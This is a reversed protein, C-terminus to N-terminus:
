GYKDAGSDFLMTAYRNNLLFTGTVVNSDPNAGRGGIAYVRAKAEKNGTKNGTKNGLNQTRLKPCESRYHGQRGCEYCTVSMQNGVLARQATAAVAANCDRITHGVRKCNDYKVTCPGEHHMRCKNYYPLAGVYGKRGVNNGVTYARAVNQGNVNQRKFPQQQHGSNDRSNNDFRRKNEANKIAYGKLKQDMLNNAICIADQLRIPETAIVNGKVTLNWLQTEMKQIENRPCYLETMLNMLAKWTMAYAADVGVTRPPCNSIHFVMEMKKFWHTLGVVGETGKFNSLQCKVFDSVEVNDDQQENEIETETGPNKTTDYAQLAEEVRKAILENIADQTIGSHTSTPMTSMSRWLRDVRQRKVGLMGRLRMNDREVTSIRELMAVSQQSTAVIRYGQDRQVSEIVRVKHVPIEIMHDYLEQIVVDLGRQIVKLSGNASVLEILDERVPEAIDDSVVPHTVRDVGIEITGRASSKAEEELDINPETYPEYRDEFDVGLGIKRPVYPVFGEESSVEFDTMFDSDRIRKRPPLLDARIPSLAEPIPLASPVSITPSRRRKRSPGAFTATPSDCLSNSIPHDSSSHRSSSDFSTDSHSDLSAESSCDSPSVRSSDNSTFHDSSSYDASYRLALRHTPLQGVIKRVILMKLVGNPETRYPRGVPIPQGPLVLVAPRRPLGLPAPLIIPHILAFSHLLTSYLLLLLHYLPYLPQFLPHILPTDDQIAPLDVTPATAPVTTPIMGFLIVRTTSTGVSEESSDSSISIVSFAM